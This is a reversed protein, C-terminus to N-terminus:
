TGSWWFKRMIATIKSIFKNSFFITTMYYIPISALVSNIYVLRGAHNLKGDKLKTLKAKFENIIFGYAKARDSHSFILPHGLYISNPQM